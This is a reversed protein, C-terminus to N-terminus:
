SPEETETESTFEDSDLRERLASIDDVQSMLEIEAAERMAVVQSEVDDLNIFVFLGIKTDTQPLLSTPLWELPNEMLRILCDRAIVAMAKRNPDPINAWVDVSEREVKAIQENTWAEANTTFDECVVAIACRSDSVELPIVPATVALDESM